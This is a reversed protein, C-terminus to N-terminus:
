VLFPPGSPKRFLPIRTSSVKTFLFLLRSTQLYQFQPGSTQLPPLLVWWTEASAWQAAAPVQQAASVPASTPQASSASASALQASSGSASAPHASSSFRFGTPSFFCSCLCAPSPSCSRFRTPSQSCSCFGVPSPSCSLLDVPSPSCSCFGM